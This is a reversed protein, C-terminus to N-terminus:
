NRTSLRVSKLFYELFHFQQRTFYEFNKTNYLPKIHSYKINQSPETM